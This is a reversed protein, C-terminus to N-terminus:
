MPISRIGIAINKGSTYQQKKTASQKNCKAVPQKNSTRQQNITVNKDGTSQQGKKHKRTAL